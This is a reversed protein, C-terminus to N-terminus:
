NEDRVLTENHNLALKNLEANPQVIKKDGTISRNDGTLYGEVYNFFSDFWSEATQSYQQNSGNSDATLDAAFSSSVGLVSVLTVIAILNKLNKM